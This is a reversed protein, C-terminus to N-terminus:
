ETRKLLKSIELKRFQILIPIVSFLVMGIICSLILLFYSSLLLGVFFKYFILFLIGPLLIISIVEAVYYSLLQNM